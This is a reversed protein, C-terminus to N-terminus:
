SLKRLGFSSDNLRLPPPPSHFAQAVRRDDCESRRDSRQEGHRSCGGLVARGQATAGDEFGRASAATVAVHFAAASREGATARHLCGEADEVAGVDRGIGFGADPAPAVGVEHARHAFAECGATM